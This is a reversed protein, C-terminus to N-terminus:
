AGRVFQIDGHGAGSDDAEGAGDRQQGAPRPDGDMLATGM